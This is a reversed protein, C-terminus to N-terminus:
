GERPGFLARGVRIMTAGEEIAIEFDDTMGMSLESWSVSPLETRLRDRYRRLGRFASRIIDVDETWPAMTMLGIVELNPLTVIQALQKVVATELTSRRIDFGYKAEEGTVNCEILVPLVREAEAAYRSLHRAIKLRDVSHVRAFNPAVDRAKRSQVHGIMDWRLDPLDQLERMKALGEAVRNEGFRRLGLGAAARVMQADHGKTV